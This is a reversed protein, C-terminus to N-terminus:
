GVVEKFVRLFNGGAIKKIEQESYGRSVLGEILNPFKTYSEFEETKFEFSGGQDPGMGLKILFEDIKKALPIPLDSGFFDSGIGVHDIGILDVLYDVHDLWESIKPRLSKSIFGQIILVGVYGNKEAIAKFLDDNKARPHEYVTKSSTHTAMIPKDSYEAADISTQTGCHSIDVVMGMKSMNDMVEKGFDTLGRDRRAMSGTGILNKTNLTLQGIRVGLMYFLELMSIDDGIPELNQLNMIIGKRNEKIARAIDDAKLVKLFLDPSNDIIYTLFSLDHFIGEFTYPKEHIPGLTWSVCDVRCENWAQKYQQYYQEENVIKKALLLILDQVIKWPDINQALMKNSEEILDQSWLMPGHSLSDIIPTSSMINIAKNKNNSM